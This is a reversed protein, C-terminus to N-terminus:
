LLINKTLEASYEISPKSCGREQLRGGRHGSNLQPLDHEVSWEVEEVGNMEVVAM